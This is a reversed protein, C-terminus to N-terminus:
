SRGGASRQAQARKASQRAKAKAKARVLRLTVSRDLAVKSHSVAVKVTLRGRAALESRAKKSLSLTVTVKGPATLTRRASGATTSRRGVTASTKVSITGPANATVVLGVKGSAALKKRQAASVARLSFGPPAEAGDSGGPPAAPGPLNPPQSRQGRCGDGSCPATQTQAFGGGVRADYIDKNFDGDAALVPADSTFYLDRGSSTIGISSGGGASILSVRGDDHWGYVDTVGNTDGASLAEASDFIVTSGDATMSSLPSSCNKPDPCALSTTVGFGSDNGGSGSVSTSVRAIVKNVADYRYADVADDTDAGPGATVLKSATLFLLYRGDPTMQTRVIDVDNDALRAVFRTTGAPHADDREWVYLNHPNPVALSPMAPGVDGVGLNSALAAGQAVFYVRSGDNSVSIVNEVQANTANGSMQTLKACGNAAGVPAPAGAPIDCAYLDRTADTDGNVLQQSTTFFVRSGDIAAGEYAAPSVGGCVGGPDGGTRTCESRSVAVTASGAVRAWVQPTGVRCGSTYIIVRADASADNFCTQAQTPQGNNDISLTRPPGDNGTGVYEHLASFLGNGTGYNFVVHSLDASVASLFPQPGLVSEGDGVRTFAGEPSRLYYGFKDGPLDRRSMAWLTWRLDASEGQVTNELANYMLDPPALATTIWGTSSRTGHYRNTLFGQPNGAFSGTSAYSVIGDESYRLYIGPEIQFGEKYPSSVMEYARCDPLGASSSEARVAANPCTDRAMTPSASGASLLGVVVAALTARLACMSRSGARWGGRVIPGSAAAETPLTMPLLVGKLSAVDDVAHHLGM